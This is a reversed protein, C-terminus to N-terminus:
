YSLQADARAFKNSVTYFINLYVLLSSIYKKITFYCHNYLSLQILYDYSKKKFPVCSVSFFFFIKVNSFLSNTEWFLSM